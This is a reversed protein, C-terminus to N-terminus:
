VLRFISSWTYRWEVLAKHINKFIFVPLFGYPVFLCINLIIAANFGDEFLKLVLIVILHHPYELVVM